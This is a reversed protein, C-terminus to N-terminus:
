LLLTGPNLRSKWVQACHNAPLGTLVPLQALTGPFGPFTVTLTGSRSYRRWNQGSSLTKRLGSLFANGAPSM